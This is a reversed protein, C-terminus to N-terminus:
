KKNLDFLSAKVYKVSAQVAQDSPMVWVKRIQEIAHALDKKSDTDSSTLWFYSSMILILTAFFKLWLNTKWRFYLDPYYFEFGKIM